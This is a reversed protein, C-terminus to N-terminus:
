HWVGQVAPRLLREAVEDMDVLRIGPLLRQPPVARQSLSFADAWVQAGAELVRAVAPAAGELGDTVGNEILLVAVDHGSRALRVADGLFAESGPGAYSGQSEVLLYEAM